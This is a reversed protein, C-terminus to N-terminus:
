NHAHLAQNLEITRRNTRCELRGTTGNRVFMMDNGFALERAKVTRILTRQEDVVDVTTGLTVYLGAAITCGDGLPIGTGANAGILCNRGISIVTNGGGSLTGMTSAGGGLDSGAGVTVGQSIRGEIMSPGIAGANFNIQGSPMVTTGEGLYAGLRIRSADAIRVGGPVVYDVMRPFKDVSYIHLTQGTLRQKM